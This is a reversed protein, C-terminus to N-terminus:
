LVEMVFVITMLKIIDHTVIIGKRYTNSKVTSLFTLIIKKKLPFDDFKSCIAALDM